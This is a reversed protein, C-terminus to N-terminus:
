GTLWARRDRKVDVGVQPLGANVVDASVSKVAVGLGYIARGCRANEEYLDCSAHRTLPFNVVIKNYTVVLTFGISMVM